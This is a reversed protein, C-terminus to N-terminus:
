CTPHQHLLVALGHVLHTLGDTHLQAIHGIGGDDEDGGQGALPHVANELEDVIDVLWAVMRMVVPM